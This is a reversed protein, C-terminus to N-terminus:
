PFLPNNLALVLQQLVAVHDRRGDLPETRHGVAAHPGRIVGPGVEQRGLQLGQEALVSIRRGSIEKFRGRRERVRAPAVRHVGPVRLEHVRARLLRQRAARAAVPDARQKSKWAEM